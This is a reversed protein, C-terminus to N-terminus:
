LVTSNSDPGFKSWLLLGGGIAIAGITLLGYSMGAKKVAPPAPPAPPGAGGFKPVFKNERAPKPMWVFFPIGTKANSFGVRTGKLHGTLVGVWRKCEFDGPAALDGLGSTDRWPKCEPHGWFEVISAGSGAKFHLNGSADINCSTIRLTTFGVRFGGGTFKGNRFRLNVTLTGVKRLVAKSTANAAFSNPHGSVPGSMLNHPVLSPGSAAFYAKQNGGQGEGGYSRGYTIGLEGFANAPEISAM